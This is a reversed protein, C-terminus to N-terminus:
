MSGKCGLGTGAGVYGQSRECTNGDVRRGRVAWQARRENTYLAAVAVHRAEDREEGREIAESSEEGTGQICM